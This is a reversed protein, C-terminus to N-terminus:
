RQLRQKMAAFGLRTTGLKFILILVCVPKRGMAETFLTMSVTSFGQCESKLINSFGVGSIRLENFM